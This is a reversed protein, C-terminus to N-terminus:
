DVLASINVPASPRALGRHLAATRLCNVASTPCDAEAYYEAATEYCTAAVNHEGKDANRIGAAWMQIARALKQTQATEM